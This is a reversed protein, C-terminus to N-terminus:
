FRIKYRQPRIHAHFARFTGLYGYKAKEAVCFPQLELFLGKDREIIGEYLYAQKKNNNTYDVPM